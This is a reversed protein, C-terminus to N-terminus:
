RNKNYSEERRGQFMGSDIQLLRGDIDLFHKSGTVERCAGHSFLKIAM